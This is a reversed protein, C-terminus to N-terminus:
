HDSWTLSNRRAARLAADDIPMGFDEEFNPTTAHRSEANAVSTDEPMV